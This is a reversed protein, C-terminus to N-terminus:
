FAFQGTKLFLAQEEALKLLKQYQNGEKFSYGIFQMDSRFNDSAFLADPSMYGLVGVKGYKSEKM